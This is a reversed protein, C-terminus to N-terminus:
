RAGTLLLVPFTKSMASITAAMIRPRTSMARDKQPEDPIRM